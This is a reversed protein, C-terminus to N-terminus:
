RVGESWIVMLLWKKGPLRSAPYRGVWGGRGVDERSHKGEGTRFEVFAFNKDKNIYVNVVANGALVLLLLVIYIYVASFRLGILCLM